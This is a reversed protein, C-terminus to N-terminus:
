GKRSRALMGLLLLGWLLAPEPHPSVSCGGFGQSSVSGGGPGPTGGAGNGQGNGPTTMKGGGASAVRALAAEANVLGAGCGKQCKSVPNATQRLAALAEPGTLTGRLSAMLSIVGAVMPAAQSTGEYFRYSFSNSKSDHLPGLVGAKCPKGQCKLGGPLTQSVNGGPAMIDVVKGHNSYPARKLDYQVAGVTIVGAISAPYVNGANQNTNGAAAVVISGRAQAAQVAATLSQGVNAAGFSLNIVKAMNKNAPVGPIAIGASWKIAAIVDSDLGNGAKVGLARVPLVKCRWDVGAMGVNNNTNAALVGAVHTGHHGTSNLNDTGNDKPNADWSDGDGASSPKSVFDYGPLLRGKLDPHGPLIGTDVVAVVVGKSGTTRNWARPMKIATLNWQYAFHPDNPLAFPRRRFNPEAHVVERLGELSVLAARTARETKRDLEYHWLGQGLDRQRAIPYGAISTFRIRSDASDWQVLLEGPAYPLDDPGAHAEARAMLTAALLLLPLLPRM